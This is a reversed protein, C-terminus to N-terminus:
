KNIENHGLSVMHRCLDAQRCWAMVQVLTSQDEIFELSMEKFQIYIHNLRTSRTDHEHITAVNSFLNEFLEPLM